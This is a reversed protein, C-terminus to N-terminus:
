KKTHVEQQSGAAMSSLGANSPRSNSTIVSSSFFAVMPDPGACVETAPGAPPFHSFFNCTALLEGAAADRPLLSRLSQLDNVREVIIDGIFEGPGNDIEGPIFLIIEGAISVM